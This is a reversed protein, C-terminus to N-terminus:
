GGVHHIPDLGPTWPDLHSPCMISPPGASQRLVDGTHVPTVGVPEPRVLRRVWPHERRRGQAAVLTRRPCGAGAAGRATEGVADLRGTGVGGLCLTTGATQRVEHGHGHQSLAMALCDSVCGRRRMGEAMARSVVPGAGGRRPSQGSFHRPSAPARPAASRSRDRPSEPGSTALVEPRRRGRGSACLPLPGAGKRACLFRARFLAQVARSVHPFSATIVHYATEISHRHLLCSTNISCIQASTFDYSCSLHPATILMYQYLPLPAQSQPLTSIGFHHNYYHRVGSKRLFSM